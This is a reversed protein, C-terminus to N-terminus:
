SAILTFKDVRNECMLPGGDIGTVVTAQYDGGTQTADLVFEVYEGPYLVLAEQAKPNQPRLGSQHVAFEENTNMCRVVGSKKKLSYWRVVGTHKDSRRVHQSCNIFDGFAGMRAFREAQPTLGRQLEALQIQKM